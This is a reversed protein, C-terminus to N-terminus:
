RITDKSISNQHPKNLLLNKKRETKDEIWVIFLQFKLFFYIDPCSLIIYILNQHM